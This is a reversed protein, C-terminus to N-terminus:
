HRSMQSKQQAITELLKTFDDAFRRVGDDLLEATVEQLAIGAAALAQLVHEAEPVNKELTARVKGHDRFADLTAPPVTNVTDPGILEEIYRVDSYAPNKTGTSGWLLRQEHVGRDALAKWREGAFIRRYRQYALKANAIAVKGKLAELRAREATDVSAIRDDLRKDVATDIRSVFFSAVSRLKQVDQGHRLREEVGSLYAEAVREYVEQSFLLTVNVNIGEATLARIAPIGEASAPVKIMVNDRAVKRWLRRAEEITAKTDHALYPSVELSVYGDRGDTADFVKRLVDAAKQIDEVALAEYLAAPEADSARLLERLAPEYEDGKAIAKEFISPNSTVGCLGDQDILRALNGQEVFRRSLFDLWISQGLAALEELPNTSSARPRAREM